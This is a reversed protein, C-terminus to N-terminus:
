EGSDLLISKSYELIGIAELESLPETLWMICGGNDKLKAICILEDIQEIESAITELVDEPSVTFFKGKHPFQIVKLKPRNKVEM